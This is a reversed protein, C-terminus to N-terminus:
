IGGPGGGVMGVGGGLFRPLLIAMTLMIAAASTTTNATRMMVCGKEALGEESLAEVAALETCVAALLADAGSEVGEEERDSDAGELLM